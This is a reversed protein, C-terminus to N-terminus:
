TVDEAQKAEFVIDNLEEVVDLLARRMMANRRIRATAERVDHTEDMVLKEESEAYRELIRQVATLFIPNDLLLASQQGEIIKDKSFRDFM